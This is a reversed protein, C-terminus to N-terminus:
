EEKEHLQVLFRLQIHQLTKDPDDLDYRAERYFAPYIPPEPYIQGNFMAEILDAIDTERILDGEMVRDLLDERCLALYEQMEATQINAALGAPSGADFSICVPSLEEQMAALLEKKRAEKEEAFKIQDMKNVIVITPV